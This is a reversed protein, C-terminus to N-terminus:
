EFVVLRSLSKTDEVKLTYAAVVGEAQVLTKRITETPYHHLTNIFLLFDVMEYEPVLVQGSEKNRVLLYNVENVSDFFGFQEHYSLLDGKKSYNPFGNELRALQLDTTKNISWVLRYAPAHSCLALVEFDSSDEFELFHKKTKM